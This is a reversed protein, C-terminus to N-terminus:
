REVDTSGQEGAAPPQTDSAIGEFDRRIQQIMKSDAGLVIVKHPRGPERADYIELKFQSGTTFVEPAYVYLGSYAEDVFAMAPNSLSVETIARGPHIPAVLMGDKYLRFDEFEAKFEMNVTPAVTPTKSLGAALGAALMAWKSGTTSGFDPKIEFTVVNDLLQDSNRRWEYYPADIADKMGPIKKGRRRYRNAAQMLESQIQQKGVHVPTIATITFKGGDLQYATIDLAETLIRQKLLETPYREGSATPL